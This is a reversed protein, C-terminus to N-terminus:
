MAIDNISFITLLMTLVVGGILIGMCLIVLPEFLAAAFKLKTNVEKEALDAVRLLMDPLRSSHEGVKILQLYKVPFLSLGDVAQWIQGGERSKQKILQIIKSFYSNDIVGDVIAVARLLEVGGDLLSGLARTMKSIQQQIIIEGVLPLGLIKREVRARLAPNKLGRKVLIFIVGGVPVLLWGYSAAFGSLGSIIQMPLPLEAGIDDFIVTFKPIVFLVLVLVSVVGVIAIICPYALASLIDARLATSNELYDSLLQFVEPLNGGEEGAQIMGLYFKSFYEPHRALVQSLRLGERISAYIDDVVPQFEGSSSKRLLKISQELTFGSEFLTAMEGTFQSTSNKRGFAPMAFSFQRGKQAEEVSLVLFGEAKLGQFIEASHAGRRSGSVTEGAPTVAKYTFSKEM